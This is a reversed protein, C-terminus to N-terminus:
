HLGCRRADDQKQQKQACQVITREKLQTCNRKVREQELKQDQQVSTRERLHAYNRKVREQKQRLGKQGAKEKLQKEEQRVGTGTEGLM